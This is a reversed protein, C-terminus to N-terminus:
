NRIRLFDSCPQEFKRPSTGYRYEQCVLKVFNGQLLNWYSIAPWPRFSESEPSAEPNRPSWKWATRFNNHTQHAFCGLLGLVHQIIAWRDPSFEIARQMGMTYILEFRVSLIEDSEDLIDRSNAQLWDQTQIMINGLESNGSVLRELGMLEFSLVHEPQILLIGGTDCANKTCIM